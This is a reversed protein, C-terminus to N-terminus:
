NLTSLTIKKVLAINLILSVFKFVSMLVAFNTFHNCRCSTYSSNRYEAYCGDTSWDGDISDCINCCFQYLYFVFLM